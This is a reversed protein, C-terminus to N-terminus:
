CARFCAKEFSPSCPKGHKGMWFLWQQRIGSPLPFHLIQHKAKFIVFNLLLNKRLLCFLSHLTNRTFCHSTELSNIAHSTPLPPSSNPFLGRPSLSAGKPFPTPHPLLGLYVESGRNTQLPCLTCFVSPGLYLHPLCTTWQWLQACVLCKAIPTATGSSGQCLSPFVSRNSSGPICFPKGSGPSM